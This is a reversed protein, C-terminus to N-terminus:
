QFERDSNLFGSLELVFIGTSLSLSSAKEAMTKLHSIRQKRRDVHSLLIPHFLSSNPHCLVSLPTCNLATHLSSLLANLYSSAPARLIVHGWTEASGDKREEM